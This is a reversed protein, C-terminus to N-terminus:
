ETQDKDSNPITWAYVGIVGAAAIGSPRNNIVIDNGPTTSYIRLSIFEIEAPIQLSGFSAITLPGGTASTSDMIAPENIGVAISLSTSNSILLHQAKVPKGSALFRCTVLDSSVDLHKLANTYQSDIVCRQSPHTKRIERILQQLLLNTTETTPIEPGGNLGYNQAELLDNAM